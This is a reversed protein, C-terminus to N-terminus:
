PPWPIKARSFGRSVPARRGPHGPVPTSLAEGWREGQAGCGHCGGVECFRGRAGIAAVPLPPPERGRPPAFGRTMTSDGALALVM